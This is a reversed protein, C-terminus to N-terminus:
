PPSSNLTFYLGKGHTILKVKKLNSNVISGKSTVLRVWKGYNFVGKVRCLLHNYLVLDNPQYTYRQCRISPKFGKRNTQLSRNNRRIQTVTLEQSRLQTNGGAIVFADNVHSKALGLRIRHYKTIVGFTCHCKLLEIMQKRVINMFTVVKLTQNARIAIKPYGFEKATRNRWRAISHTRKALTILWYELIIV